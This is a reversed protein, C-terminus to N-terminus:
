GRIFQTGSAKYQRSIFYSYSFYSNIVALISVVGGWIWNIFSWDQGIDEKCRRVGNEVVLNCIGNESTRSNSSPYVPKQEEKCLWVGDEVSVTFKGITPCNLQSMLDEEDDCEWKGDKLVVKCVGNAGSDLRPLLELPEKCTWKGDEIVVTCKGKFPHDIKPFIDADPKCSWKGDEVVVACAKKSTHEFKPFMEKNSKCRWAGDEMIVTCMGQRPYDFKPLLEADSKCAWQGDNNMMVACAGKGKQNFKPLLETAPKCALHGDQIILTCNDEKPLKINPIVEAQEKCVWKGDEIMVIYAGTTPCDLDHPLLPPITNESTFLNLPKTLSTMHKCTWKDNEMTASCIGASPCEFEMKLPKSILYDNPSFHNTEADGKNSKLKIHERFLHYYILSVSVLATESILHGNNDSLWKRDKCISISKPLVIDVFPFTLVKFDETLYALCYLLTFISGMDIIIYRWPLGTVLRTLKGIISMVRQVTRFLFWVTCKDQTPEVKRNVDAELMPREHGGTVLHSCIIQLAGLIPFISLLLMPNLHSSESPLSSFTAWTLSIKTLHNIFTKVSHFVSASRENKPLVNLGYGCVEKRLCDIIAEMAMLGVTIMGLPHNKLKGDFVIYEGHIGIVLRIFCGAMALVSIGTTCQLLLEQYNGSSRKWFLPLIFCCCAALITYENISLLETLGISEAIAWLEMLFKVLCKHVLFILAFIPARLKSIGDNTDEGLSPDGDELVMKAVWESM